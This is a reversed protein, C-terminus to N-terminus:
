SPLSPSLSPSLSPPLSPPFLFFLLFSLSLYLFFLPASFVLFSLDKFIGSNQYMGLGIPIHYMGNIYLQRALEMRGLLPGRVVYRTKRQSRYHEIEQAALSELVGHVTM